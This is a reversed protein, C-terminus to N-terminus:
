FRKGGHKHPRTSNYEDKALIAEALRLNLRNAFFMIRLVVDALEDELQSFEPIKESPPNGIRVAELAESLESHMLAIKLGKNEDTDLVEWGHAEAIMTAEIAKANFAIIFEEKLKKKMHNIEEGMDMM